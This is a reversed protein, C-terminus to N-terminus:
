PQITGKPRSVTEVFTDPRYRNRQINNWVQQAYDDNNWEKHEDQVAQGSLFYEELDLELDLILQETNSM